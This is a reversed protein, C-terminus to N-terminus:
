RIPRLAPPGDVAGSRRRALLADVSWVSGCHSLSLLFLAHTAICNYKTMTGVMDLMSFWAYLLTAAMLSLRTMWGLSGAVLFFLLATYLAVALEAGPIPLLSQMGYSEWLPAPSGATSFLERVHPWRPVTAALLVLPTAIRMLALGYPTERAYFFERIASVLGRNAHDTPSHTM